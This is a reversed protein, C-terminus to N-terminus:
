KILYYVKEPIIDVRGINSPSSVLRLYVINEGENSRSSLDAEIRFDKASVSGYNKLPVHYRLKVSSPIFQVKRGRPANAPFVKITVTEETYAEAIVTIVVEEPSFYLRRYGEPASLTITDHVEGSIGRLSIAPLNIHDIADIENKPGIVKVQTPSIMIPAFVEYGSRPKVQVDPALVNITKVTEDGMNFFITDSTVKDLEDGDHIGSSLLTPFKSPVWFHQGNKKEVVASMDIEIPLEGVMYSLINFNNMKVNISITERSIESSLYGAPLSTYRPSLTTSIIQGNQLQQLFWWAFVVIFSVLLVLSSKNDRVKRRWIRGLLYKISPTDSGEQPSPTPTHTDNM